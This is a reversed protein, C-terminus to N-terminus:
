DFCKEFPVTATGQHFRLQWGEDGLQWLSSRLSFRSLSGDPELKASKYTLLATKNELEQVVYDQSWILSVPAEQLLLKLISARSYVKGSRGFEVFDKHLLRELQAIDKRVDTTHLRQELHRLTELVTM